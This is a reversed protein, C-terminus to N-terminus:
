GAPGLREETIPSVCGDNPSALAGSAAAFISNQWDPLM